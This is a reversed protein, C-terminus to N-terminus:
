ILGQCYTDMRVNINVGHYGVLNCKIYMPWYFIILFLQYIIASDILCNKKKHENLIM